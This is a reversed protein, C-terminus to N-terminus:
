DLRPILSRFINAKAMGQSRRRDELKKKFDRVIGDISDKRLDMYCIDSKLGAMVTDDLRIPLIFEEERVKAEGRAISFEFDTWDKVIYHKSVLVLVFETKAGFAEKFRTSLSKGWMDAKFFEDFFISIREKKLREALDKAVVADESAYSIAVDFEKARSAGAKVAKSDDRGSVTSVARAHPIGWPGYTMHTDGPAPQWVDTSIGKRSPQEAPSKDNVWNEIENRLDTESDLAPKDFLGTYVQRLTKPNLLGLIESVSLKRNEILTLYLRHRNGSIPLSNKALFARLRRKEMHTEAHYGLEILRAFVLLRGIRSEDQNILRIIKGRMGGGTQLMFIRCLYALDSSSLGVLTQKDRKSLEVM